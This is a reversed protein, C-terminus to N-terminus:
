EVRNTDVRFRCRAQTEFRVDGNGLTVPLFVGGGFGDLLFRKPNDVVLKAM